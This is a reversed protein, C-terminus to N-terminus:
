FERLTLRRRHGIQYVAAVDDAGIQIPKNDDEANTWSYSSNNKITFKWCWFDHTYGSKYVVRVRFQRKIRPLRFKM